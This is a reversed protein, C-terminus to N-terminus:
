IEGNYCLKLQGSSMEYMLLLSLQRALQSEDIIFHGFWSGSITHINEPVPCFLITYDRLEKPYQALASCCYDEEGKFIKKAAKLYISNKLKNM